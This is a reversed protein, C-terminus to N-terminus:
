KQPSPLLPFRSFSSAVVTLQPTAWLPDPYADCDGFHMRPASAPPPPPTVAQLAWGHFPCLSLNPIQAMLYMWLNGHCTAFAQKRVRLFCVYM